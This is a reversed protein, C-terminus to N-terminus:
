WRPPNAGDNRRGSAFQGGCFFNSPVLFPFVTADDSPGFMSCILGVPKTPRGYGNGPLTDTQVETRRKFSYPGNGTKRQQTRFTELVVRIAKRWSEDFPATDGTAKWYGHALRIPYVNTSVKGDALARDFHEPRTEAVRLNRLCDFNKDKVAVEWRRRTEDMKKAVIHEMVQQWTRTALQPDSANLYVKALGLSIGPQRETENMANVKQEAEAKVRTKLSVSNGTV